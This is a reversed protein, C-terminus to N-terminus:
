AEGGWFDAPNEIPHRGGFGTHLEHFFRLYPPEGYRWCLFIERGRYTSLFDITGGNLDKITCGYTQIEAALREIAMFDDVADSAAASGTNSYLDDTVDALRARQAVVRGRRALLEGLLDSVAPLVRNVEDISFYRPAM